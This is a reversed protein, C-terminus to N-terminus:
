VSDALDFQRQDHVSKLHSREYNPDQWWMGIKAMKIRISQQVSRTCTRCTMESNVDTTVLASTEDFREDAPYGDDATPNAPNSLKLLKSM